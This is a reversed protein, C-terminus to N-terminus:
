LFRPTRRRHCHPHPRREGIQGNWPNSSRYSGIGAHNKQVMYWSHVSRSHEQITEKSVEKSTSKSHPIRQLREERVQSRTAPGEQHLLEPYRLSGVRVQHVEQKKNHWRELLARVHLLRHWRGLVDPMSQMTSKAGCRSDRFTWHKWCSQNCRTIRQQFSQISSITSSWKSTSTASPPERDESDFKSAMHDNWQLIHYAQFTSTLTRRM